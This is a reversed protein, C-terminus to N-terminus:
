KNGVVKIIPTKYCLFSFESISYIGPTVYKTFTLLAIQVCTDWEQKFLKEDSKWNYYALEQSLYTWFKLPKFCFINMVHDFRPIAPQSTSATWQVIM